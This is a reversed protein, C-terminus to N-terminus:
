RKRYEERLLGVTLDIAELNDAQKRVYQLGDRLNDAM